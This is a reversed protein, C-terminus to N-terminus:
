WWSSGGRDVMWRVRRTTAWWAARSARGLRHSPWEEYYLVGPFLLTLSGFERESRGPGTLRPELDKLDAKQVTVMSRRPFRTSLM